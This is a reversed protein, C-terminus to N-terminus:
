IHVNGLGSSNEVQEGYKKSRSKGWMQRAQREIQSQHQSQDVRLFVMAGDALREVRAWLCRSAAFGAPERYDTIGYQFVRVMTGLSSDIWLLMLPFSYSLCCLGSPVILRAVASFESMDVSNISTHSTFRNGVNYRNECSITNSDLYMCDWKAM